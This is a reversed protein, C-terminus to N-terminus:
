NHGLSATKNLQSFLGMRRGSFFGVIKGERVLMEGSANATLSTLPFATDETAGLYSQRKGFPLHFGSLVVPGGLPSLSWGGGAM